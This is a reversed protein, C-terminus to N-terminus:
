STRSVAKIMTTAVSFGLLLRLYPFESTKTAVFGEREYLRRAGPNTNIVDLRITEYKQEKAYAVLTRLLGTGIGQGRLHPDVAIGDMPLESGVTKREYLAFIALARVMGLWSLQRRIRAATIDGTFSTGEAYFGALGVLQQEGM